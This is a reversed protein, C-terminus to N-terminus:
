SKNQGFILRRFPIHSGETEVDCIKVEPLGMYCLNAVALTVDCVM